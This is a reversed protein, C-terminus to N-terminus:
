IINRMIIILLEELPSECLELMSGDARSRSTKCFTQRKISLTLLPSLRVCYLDM